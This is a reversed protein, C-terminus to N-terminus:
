LIGYIDGPGVFYGKNHLEKFVNAQIIMSPNSFLNKNKSESSDIENCDSSSEVDLKRKKTIGSQLDDYIPIQENWLIVPLTANTDDNSYNYHHRVRTQNGVYEPWLKNQFIRRVEDESWIVRNSLSSMSSTAPVSSSSSSSM